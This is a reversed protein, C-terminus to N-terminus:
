GFVGWVEGSTVVVDTFRGPVARNAWLDLDTGSAEGVTADNTWSAVVSDTKGYLALYVEGAPSQGANTIKRYGKQIMVTQYYDKSLSFPEAGM